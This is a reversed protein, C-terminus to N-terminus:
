SAGAKMDPAGRTRHREDQGEHQRLWEAYSWRHRLMWYLYCCLKRAAAVTAKSTGKARKLRLYEDRVPGPHLKLLQTVEILAWRLWPRGLHPLSGHVTKGGSSHTTPVLGAFSALHHSTPFRELTGIEAWILLAHHYGVGPVTQLLTAEPTESM